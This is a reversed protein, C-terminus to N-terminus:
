IYVTLFGSFNLPKRHIHTKPASELDAIPSSPVAASQNNRLLPLEMTSVSYSSNASM